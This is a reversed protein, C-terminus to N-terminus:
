RWRASVTTLMAKCREIKIERQSVLAEEFQARAEDMRGAHRDCAALGILAGCECRRDAVERAQALSAAFQTHAEANKGSAQLARGAVWHVKAAAAAGLGATAQVVSALEVGVRFPGRLSLGAWAGQLTDAAVDADARAAARRCAVVFNDLEACADAIAAREDVGAYYAGHRAEAALLAAPGSGAYSGATRLHEAAYEQVSVLLDFRDGTVQRVLSKQVLSQLADM